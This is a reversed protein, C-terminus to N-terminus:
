GLSWRMRDEHNGRKAIYHKLVKMFGASTWCRKRCTLMVTDLLGPEHAELFEGKIYRQSIDVGAFPKYWREVINKTSGYDCEDQDVLLIGPLLYIVVSMLLQIM